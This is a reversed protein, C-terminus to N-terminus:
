RCARAAESADLMDHDQHLFVAREVMIEARKGPHPAKGVRGNGALRDVAGAVRDEILEAECGPHAHVGLSVELREM